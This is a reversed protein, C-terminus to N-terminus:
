KIPRDTHRDTHTYCEDNASIALATRPRNGYVRSRHFRALTPSCTLRAEDCAMELLDRDGPQQPNLPENQTRRSKKTNKKKSKKKQVRVAQQLYAAAEQSM